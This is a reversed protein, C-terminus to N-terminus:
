KKKHAEKEMQKRYKEMKKREQDSFVTGYSFAM